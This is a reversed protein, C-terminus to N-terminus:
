AYSVEGTSRLAEKRESRVNEGQRFTGYRSRGRAVELEVDFGM